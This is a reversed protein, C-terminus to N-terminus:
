PARIGEVFAALAQRLLVADSPLAILVFGSTAYARAEDVSVAAAGVPVGRASCAERLLGVRRGNAPDDREIGFSLALDAPGIFIADIGPVALIEDVNAIGEETEIMLICLVRENAWAASYGPAGLAPRAPGWSRIGGPPYRCAAVAREADAATSVLPVIVGCAGADLANMIVGPENWPVRVLGVKGTPGVAQMLRSVDGSRGMGHQTDLCVWDLGARAVIEASLSDSLYLWGGLTVDGELWRARLRGAAELPHLAADGQGSV